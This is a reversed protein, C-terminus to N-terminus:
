SSSTEGRGADVLPASGERVRTAAFSLEPAVVLKKAAQRLREVLVYFVPV